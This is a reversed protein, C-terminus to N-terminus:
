TSTWLGMEYGLNKMKAAINDAVMDIQRLRLGQSFRLLCLSFMSKYTNATYQRFHASFAVITHATMGTFSGCGTVSLPKQVASYPGTGSRNRDRRGETCREHVYGILITYFMTFLCIPIIGHLNSKPYHM